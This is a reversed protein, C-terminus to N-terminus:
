DDEEDETDDDEDRRYNAAIFELDPLSSKYLYSHVDDGPDSGYMRDNGQRENEDDAQLRATIEDIVGENLALDEILRRRRDENRSKRPAARSKRPAARPKRPAARSKRKKRVDNASTYLQKSKLHVGCVYTRGARIGIACNKCKQGNQTYAACCGPRGRHRCRNAACVQRKASAFFEM